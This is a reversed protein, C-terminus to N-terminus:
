LRAGGALAQGARTTGAARGAVRGDGLARVGSAGPLVVRALVRARRGRRDREARRRDARPADRVEGAGQRLVRLVGPAHSIARGGRRGAGPAAARGTGSGSLAGLGGDRRLRREGAATWGHGGGALIRRQQEDIIAACLTDGAW